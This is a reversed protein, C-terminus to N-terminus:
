NDNYNQDSCWLEPSYIISKIATPSAIMNLTYVGCIHLKLAYAENQHLKRRKGKSIKGGTGENKIKVAAMGGVVVTNQLIYVGTLTLYWLNKFLWSLLSILPYCTNVISRFPHFITSSYHLKTANVQWTTPFEKINKCFVYDQVPHTPM